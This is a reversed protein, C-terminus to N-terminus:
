ATGPDSELRRPLILMGLLTEDGPHARVHVIWIPRGAHDVLDFAEIDAAPWREAVLSLVEDRSRPAEREDFM